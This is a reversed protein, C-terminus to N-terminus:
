FLIISLAQSRLGWVPKYKEPQILARDYSYATEQDGEPTQAKVQLSSQGYGSGSPKLKEIPVLGQETPVLTGEAVCKGMGVALAGLYNGKRLGWESVLAQYPFFHPNTQAVEFGTPPSREIKAQLFTQYDTM